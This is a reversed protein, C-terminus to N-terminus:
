FHYRARIEGRLENPKEGFEEDRGGQLYGLRFRLELNNIGDYEVEPTFSFSGDGANVIATAAPTWYLWDFPEKQSVRVYLYDRGPTSRGYGADRAASARSLLSSSGTDVAQHALADFARMEAGTFGTGQHYVEAIYTTDLETLYRLGLLWNQANEIVKENPANPHVLTRPNDTIYAWEGHLEFNSTLNRSFDFGYRDTKGAGTLVMFDVDTDWALLYIKAAYNFGDKAGFNDNLAGEVPVVAPTFALTRVPGAFSAILDGTLMVFGERAETPNDPDKAREVFGVPNWAYGKGWKIAKKGIEVTVGPEPQVALLGEFLTADHSDDDLSDWTGTLEGAAHLTAIGSRLAGELHLTEQLQDNRRQDLDPYRNLGFLAGDRNFELHNWQTELHGGIEFPKKAFSEVDFSTDTAPDGAQATFAWVTLAAIVGPRRRGRM